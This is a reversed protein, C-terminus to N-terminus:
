GGFKQLQYIKSGVRAPMGPIVTWQLIRDTGGNVPSEPLGLARALAISGEGLKRTPADDSVDGCVFRAINGTLPDLVLGQCGLVIGPVSKCFKPIVVGYQDIDANLPLGNYRLSTQSQHYKDGHSPGAGDSDVPMPAQWRYSGDENNWIPNGNFDFLLKM